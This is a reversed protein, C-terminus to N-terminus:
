VHARGIQVAMFITKYRDVPLTFGKAAMFGCPWLVVKQRVFHYHGQFWEKDTLDPVFQRRIVGM